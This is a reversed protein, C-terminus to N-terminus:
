FLKEHKKRYKSPSSNFYSKFINNFYHQCSFGITECIEPISYDTSCLLEISYDLKIKTFIKNPTDYGLKKFTRILHEQSYGLKQAIEKISLKMNEPTHMLETAQEFLNGTQVKPEFYLPFETILKTVAISLLQQKKKSELTTLFLAKFLYRKCQEFVQSSVKTYHIKCLDFFCDNLLLTGIKNFHEAKISITFYNPPQNANQETYHRDSPTILCLEYKQMQKPKGNLVHIVSNEIPFILEYFDHSHETTLVKSNLKTSFCTTDTSSTLCEDFNYILM